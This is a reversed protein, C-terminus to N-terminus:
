PPPRVPAFSVTPWVDNLRFPVRSLVFECYPGEDRELCNYHGSAIVGKVGPISPLREPALEYRKSRHVRRTRGASVEPVTAEFSPRASGQQIAHDLSITEPAHLEAGIDAIGGAHADGWYYVHGEDTLVLGSSVGVALQKVHKVTRLRTVACSNSADAREPTQWGDRGTWCHLERDRGVIACLSAIAHVDRLPLRKPTCEPEVFGRCIEGWCTVAGQKDLACWAGMGASLQVPESALDVTEPEETLEIKQSRMGPMCMAVGWCQVQGSALLACGAGSNVVVQRAPGALPIQKPWLRQREHTWVSGWCHVVGRRDLSCVYDDGGDLALVQSLGPIKQFSRPSAKITPSPWAHRQVRLWCQVEEHPDIACIWSNADVLKRPPVLQSAPQARVPKVLLCVWVLAAIWRM